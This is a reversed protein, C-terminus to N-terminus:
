FTPMPMVVGSGVARKSMQSEVRPKSMGRSVVCCRSAIWFGACVSMM